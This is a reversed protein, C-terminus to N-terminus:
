PITSTPISKPTFNEIFENGRRNLPNSANMIFGDRKTGIPGRGPDDPSDRSDM